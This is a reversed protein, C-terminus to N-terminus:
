SGERSSDAVRSGFGGMSFGTLTGDVVLKWVEDDWVKVVMVWAGKKVPEAGLSFDVPACYSEVISIGDNPVLHQVKIARVDSLFAHAAKEIDEASAYDGDYDVEDPEYVVGYVLRKGEDQKLFKCEKKIPSNM